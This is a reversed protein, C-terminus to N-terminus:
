SAINPEPLDKEALNQVTGNEFWLLHAKVQEQPYIKRLLAFYAGMQARYAPPLTQPVILDTKLDGFLITGTSTSTKTKTNTKPKQGDRVVGQATELREEQLYDIRGIIEVGNSVGVIDKEFHTTYEQTFFPSSDILRMSKEFWEQITAECVASTFAYPKLAVRLWDRANAQSKQVIRQILEHILTGRERPTLIRPRQERLSADEFDANPHAHLQSAARPKMRPTETPPSTFLFLPYSPVTDKSSSAQETKPPEPTAGISSDTLTYHQDGDETSKRWEQRIAINNIITSWPNEAKARGSEDLKPRPALVVLRDRARTMAVYLLRKEEDEASRNQKERQEMLRKGIDLSALVATDGKRAYISIGESYDADYIKLNGTVESKNEVGLPLLVIPSELGKAGHITLLRIKRRARTASERSVELDLSEIHQLFQSLSIGDNNREFDLAAECLSEIPDRAASTHASILAAYGSIASPVPNDLLYRLTEFPSLTRTLAQSRALWAASERLQPHESLRLQTHLNRNAELRALCVEQLLEESVNLFPSKLLGALNLEDEAQVLFRVWALVDEVEIMSSLKCKDIDECPLGNETFKAILHQMNKRKRLLIMVDGPKARNGNPLLAANAGLINQQVFDVVRENWLQNKSATDLTEATETEEASGESGQLDLYHLSVQGGQELRRAEHRLPGTEPAFAPAQPASTLLARRMESSEFTKDVAKLIPALSRYSYSLTQERFRLGAESARERFKERAEIFRALDAGQFSYISQKEDGVVFLSRATREGHPVLAQNSFIEETLKEVISWQANNTDQAEDVLVHDFTADLKYLVWPTLDSAFLAKTKDILDDFDLHAHRKRDEELALIQMQALDYLALNLYALQECRYKSYARALREAEQELKAACAEGLQAITGKTFLPNKGLTRDQKLFIDLYPELAVISENQSNLEIRLFIQIKKLRKEDNARLNDMAVLRDRLSVIEKITMSANELVTEKGSPTFDENSVQFFDAVKARARAVESSVRYHQAIRAAQELSADNKLFANIHDLKAQTLATKSNPAEFPREAKLQVSRDQQVLRFKPSIGSELPFQGLVSQCFAHFTMIRLGGRCDLSNTYLATARSIEADSPQKDFFSIYIARAKKADTCEKLAQLIRASMEAAAARTYTLCLIREAAAGALLLALFRQTLLMTKGSGASATVWFSSQIEKLAPKQEENPPPMGAQQDREAEVVEVKVSM